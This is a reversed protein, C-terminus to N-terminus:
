NLNVASSSEFLTGSATEQLDFVTQYNGASIQEKSFVNLRRSQQPLVVVKSIPVSLVTEGTDKDLLRGNGQLRLIGDGENKIMVSMRTKGKDLASDIDSLTGAYHIGAMSGYIPVLIKTVVRFQMQKTDDGGTYRADSLPTFEIAGWYERPKGTHKKLISFRIKRSSNPPLTFEKPNFKVWKALSYEDPKTPSISGSESLKFHLAKARFRQTEKSKNSVTFSGSPNNNTLDVRLYAPQISIAAEAVLSFFWLLVLSMWILPSSSVAKM